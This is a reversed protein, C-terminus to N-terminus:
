PSVTGDLLDEHNERLAVTISVRVAEPYPISPNLDAIMRWSGPGNRMKTWSIHFHMSPAHPNNPHIIVSLATASDVPSNPKDEYNVSSVNVSARNFVPTDTVEYRVGGGYLGSARLWRVPLFVSQRSADNDSTHITELRRVFHAQLSELLEQVQAQKEVEIGTEVVKTASPGVSSSNSCHIVSVTSSLM